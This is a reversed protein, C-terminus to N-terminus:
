AGEMDGAGLAAGVVDRTGLRAGDGAGEPRGDGDGVLGGVLRGVRFVGVRLGAGVLEVLAGVSEGVMVGWGLVDGCGELVGVKSRKPVVVWNIESGLPFEPM